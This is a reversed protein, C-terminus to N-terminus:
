LGWRSMLLAFDYKDVKGDNNLDCNNSGTKGWNSMMLSFDYKDIKNDGNVDGIKITTSTSTSGGSAGGGSSVAVVLPVATQTYTVFNTFHKVWIILDSGINIKCDGGGVLADGAVQSDANCANTIPTFAGNRSYGVYKGAQGTIEIRVAKNFTLLTDGCGIEIVSSVAATNGSDPTVTVTSNEKVQPINIVGNWTPDGATIQIGAPIEVKVAGTTTSANITMAGQITATTSTATNTTLASVNITANNVGSPITIISSATNNDGVLIESNSTSVTTSADLLQSSSVVPLVNVARTVQIAPNGTADSVNYTIAYTGATIPNVSNMTVINATIDGDVNDLATAGADVYTSGTYIDMVSMGNLTIVPPMTDLTFPLDREIAVGSSFSPYSIITDGEKENGSLDVFKFTIPGNGKKVVLRQRNLEPYGYIGNSQVKIEGGLDTGYYARITSGTVMSSGNLTAQGYFAMPFDPFDEAHAIKDVFVSCMILSVVLLGIKKTKGSQM